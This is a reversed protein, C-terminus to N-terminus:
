MIESKEFCRDYWDNFEQLWDDDDVEAHVASWEEFEKNWDNEDYTKM